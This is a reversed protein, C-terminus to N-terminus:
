TAGPAAGRWRRGAGTPCGRVREARPPREEGPRAEVVRVDGVRDPSGPYRAAAIERRDDGRDVEVIRRCRCVLCIERACFAYRPSDIDSLEDLARDIPHRNQTRAWDLPHDVDRLRRHMSTFVTPSDTNRCAAFM